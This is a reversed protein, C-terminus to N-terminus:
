AARKIQIEDDAEGRLIRQVELPLPAPPDPDREPWGYPEFDQEHADRDFAATQPSAVTVLRARALVWASTLIFAYAGIASIAYISAFVGAEGRALGLIQGSAAVLPLLTLPQDASTVVLEDIYRIAVGAIVAYLILAPIGGDAAAHGIAGPGLTLSDRNVKEMKALHPLDMSLTDPKGAWWNRPIPFYFAYVLTSLPRYAYREPFREMIWMAKNAAGQGDALMAIGQAPNARAVAKLQAVPGKNHAERLGGRAATFMGVVLVAPIVMVAVRKLVTHPRMYRWVSYYAGFIFCASVAILPRRGFEGLTALLLGSGLVVAAGLLTRGDRPKTAWIWGVLGASMAVLALGVKSTVLGVLPIPLRMFAAGCVLCVIIYTWLTREDPVLNLRKARPVLKSAPWRWRYSLMFVFLFVTSWAAFTVGTETPYYLRFDGSVPRQVVRAASVLQFVIFGMLAVNRMSLLDYTARLYQRLVWALTVLALTYFYGALVLEM